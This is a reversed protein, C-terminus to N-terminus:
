RHQVTTIVLNVALAILLLLIGLAISESINGMSTELSIATTLVRTSSAFSSAMINGGVLIAAGVESIARGFGVAVAALIAFRAEKMVNALFQLHTAGLSRLTDRIVPDVGSLASITLGTMIPLVLVTQAIVMATPTFLLRMFGFPGVRSIFLFILLGVVVTPLSYLTQILNILSKRGPFTGFYIAAGLPVAVLGALVTATLSITISRLAIAMVDADLTVILRAAELFGEVIEYM